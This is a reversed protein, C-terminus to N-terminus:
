FEGDEKSLFEILPRVTEQYWQFKQNFLHSKYSHIMTAHDRKFLEGLKVYTFGASRLIFTLYSRMIVLEQTRKKQYLKFKEVAIFVREINYEDHIIKMGKQVARVYCLEAIPSEKWGVLLVLYDAEDLAEFCTLVQENFPQTIININSLTIFYETSYKERAARFKALRQMADMNVNGILVLKKKIESM